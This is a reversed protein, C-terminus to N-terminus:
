QVMSGRMQCASPAWEMGCCPSDCFNGLTLTSMKHFNPYSKNCDFLDFADVPFFCVKGRGESLQRRTRPLAAHNTYQGELLLASGVTPTSPNEGNHSVRNAANAASRSLPRGKPPLFLPVAPTRYRDVCARTEKSVDPSVPAKKYGREGM